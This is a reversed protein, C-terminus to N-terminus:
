RWKEGGFAAFGREILFVLVALALLIPWIPKEYGARGAPQLDDLSGFSRPMRTTNGEDEHLALHSGMPDPADPTTLTYLSSLPREQLLWRVANFFVTTSFRGLNDDTDNPLDPVYAAPGADYQALWVLGDTGRLVPQFGKPLNVGRIGLSEAVDFNLDALLPSAEYFDHIEIPDGAQQPYGDGVILTPFGDDPEAPYPVVRLHPEKHDEQWGLREALRRDDLQWDVRITQGDGIDIVAHDDYSYAGGPSLDLTYPGPETPSFSGRWTNDDPWSLTEDLVSDGDPATTLLRANAPPEGFATIELDVRRVLGTLSNRSAQIDTFGVNDVASGVGRWIVKAAGSDAIWEPPSLDSVVVIHTIFCEAKSQDDLLGLLGRILNLDTGLPRPELNAAARRVANIDRTAPSDQRELDFTSLRLCLGSDERARDAKAIAQKIEQHAAVMRTASGHSTSMSASTDVVIWLGISKDDDSSFLTTQDSRVAALLLLSILLQLYFPRSVLPNGWRLRWPPPDESQLDNFFRAASLVRREFPPRTMYIVVLVGVLGGFLWAAIM